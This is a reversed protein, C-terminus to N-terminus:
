FTFNKPATFETCLPMNAEITFVEHLNNDKKEFVHAKTLRKEKDTICVAVKGNEELQHIIFNPISSIGLEVIIAKYPGYEELGLELPTNQIIASYKKLKERCKAILIPHSEVIYATCGLEFLMTATYGYNGGVVLVKDNPSLNLHQFFIGLTQPAFLYRGPVDCYIPSDGYAMPLAIVPVFHERSINEFVSLISKNIVGNAKLQSFVMNSRANKIPDMRSVRM